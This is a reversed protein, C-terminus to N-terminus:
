GKAVIRGERDLRLRERGWVVTDGFLGAAWVSVGWFDRAPIAYCYKWVIPSRLVFWGAGVAMAIRLALLALAVWWLGALAAALCWLTAFTVPLGFYGGRSLRITRAWRLQHDWAARWSGTALRTSVVVESIVNRLGLGHLKSGLQYDDAIYDRIAEFGGIRALDSARFALTSGLGFESVGFWRAVLTSPAFETAIALAEFRNPWDHAEARYLCTVLGVGANGLPATVREIYDAPVSIDADNVILISHRAERALDILSGVKANPALTKCEILRIPVGPFERILREIDGRAADDPQAVGFLIEFDPYRQVAHSLIAEYFGPHRGHVPKLISVPQAAPKPYATQRLHNLAAALAIFQYAAAACCLALIIWTM